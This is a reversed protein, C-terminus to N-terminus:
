DFIMFVFIIICVYMCLNIIRRNEIVILSYYTQYSYLILSIVKELDSSSELYESESISCSVTSNRLQHRIKHAGCNSHINNERVWNREYVFQSFEFVICKISISCGCIYM